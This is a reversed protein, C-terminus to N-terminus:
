ALIVPLVIRSPRGSEHFVTNTAIVTRRHRNLPEGTNTRSMRNVISIAQSGTLRVVGVPAHGPASSIAVVTEDLRDLM